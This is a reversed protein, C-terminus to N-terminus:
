QVAKQAAAAKSVREWFPDFAFPIDIWPKGDINSKFGTAYPKPVHARIIARSQETSPVYLDSYHSEVPIGAAVLKQYLTPESPATSM